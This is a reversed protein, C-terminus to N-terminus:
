AAPHRWDILTDRHSGVARRHDVQLRLSRCLRCCPTHLKQLLKVPLVEGRTLVLQLQLRANRGELKGRSHLYLGAPGEVKRLLAGLSVLEIARLLGSGAHISSLQQQCATQYFIANSEHLDQM